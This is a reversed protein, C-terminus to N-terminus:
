GASQRGILREARCPQEGLHQVAQVYLGKKCRHRRVDVDAFVMKDYQM